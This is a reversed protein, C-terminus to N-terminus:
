LLDEMNNKRVTMRERDTRVDYHKYLVELSVDCRESVVEPSVEQNLHYTISGRRVAHPGRSSPCKSPYGDSGRADCEAPDIDHPCEGYECPQTARTTRKYITDGVPRGQSTTFLPERGYDDVAEDREPHELYNEIVQYHVPGLYVWREGDDGNKLKTGQEPRNKLALAHDDPRLDNVDLARLASRRIATYWLITMMAHRPSAYHFRDLTSLIDEAREASLHEERAEAGDPLEPSHLKDILEGSVAEIDAWFRLAQRPSSLQKQLTLPKVQARRWAVFDSLHRGSLENLNEIEAVNVAWERFHNMRTRANEMSSQELEPERYRLFREIGEQVDLPQLDDSM